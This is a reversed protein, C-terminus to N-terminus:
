GRLFAVFRYGFWLGLAAILWGVARVVMTLTEERFRERYRRLLYTLLSFWGGIGILSGLAFLPASSPEFVILDSSYLTTTAATWTAILTPNLATITFGLSVSKFDSDKRPQEEKKEHPAVYRAFSVGLGLLILAALLRSIPEVIPYKVLFTSFGWFAMFAYGAEAVAAGAGILAGARFKGVLGRQLVLAAIPGAIPISGFFGFCFGIIAAILV